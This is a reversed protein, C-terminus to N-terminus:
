EDPQRPRSVGAMMRLLNAANDELQQGILEGVKARFEDEIENRNVGAKILFKILIRNASAAAIAVDRAKLNTFARDFAKEEPMDAM